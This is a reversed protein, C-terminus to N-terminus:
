TIQNTAFERLAEVVGLCVYECHCLDRQLRHRPTASESQLASSDLVKDALANIPELQAVFEAIKPDDLPAILTSLNIQALHYNMRSWRGRGFVKSDFRLRSDNQLYTITRADRWVWALNVEV